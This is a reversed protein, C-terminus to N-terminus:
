DADRGRPAHDEAHLERLELFQRKMSRYRRELLIIIVVILAPGGLTVLLSDKPFLSLMIKSLSLMAWNGLVAGIVSGWFTAWRSLGLLRGFIAGGVSGTAALPFAIFAILGFFTAKRMWPQLSLIMEGDVTLEAIKPGIKPLRFLFGVHFAMFLAVMVDQYTVMWFMHWPELLDLGKLNAMADLPIVFRGAFFFAVVAATLIQWFFRGGALLFILGALVGTVIWPGVLTSWWVVPFRQKFSKEFQYFAELLEQKRAHDADAAPAPSAGAAAAVPKVPNPQM